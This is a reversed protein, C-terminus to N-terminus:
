VSLYSKVIRLLIGQLSTFIDSIEFRAILGYVVRRSLRFHMIFDKNLYNRVIHEIYNNIKIHHIHQIHNIALELM